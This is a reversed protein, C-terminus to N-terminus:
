VSMWRLDFLLRVFSLCIDSSFAPRCFLLVCSLLVIPRLIDLRFNSPLGISMPHVDFLLEVFTRHVDSPLGIVFHNWWWM